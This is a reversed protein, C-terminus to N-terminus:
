ENGEIGRKNQYTNEEGQHKVKLLLGVVCKRKREREREYDGDSTKRSEHNM